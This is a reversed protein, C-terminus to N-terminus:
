AGAHVRSKLARTGVPVRPAHLLTGLVSVFNGSGRDGEGAKRDLDGLGSHKLRIPCPGLGGILL